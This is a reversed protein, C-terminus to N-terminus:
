EISHMNNNHQQPYEHTVMPANDRTGGCAGVDTTFEILTDFAGMCITGCAPQPPPVAHHSSAQHHHHIPLVGMHDSMSSETLAHNAIQDLSPTRAQSKQERTFIMKMDEDNSNNNTTTRRTALTTSGNHYQEISSSSASDRHHEHGHGHEYGHSSVGQEKLTNLNRIAKLLEENLYEIQNEFKRRRKTDRMVIMTESTETATTDAEEAQAEYSRKTGRAKELKREATMLLASRKSPDADRSALDLLNQISDIEDKLTNEWYLAVEPM